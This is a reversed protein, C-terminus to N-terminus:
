VTLLVEGNDGATDTLNIALATQSPGTGTFTNNVQLSSDNDGTVVVDGAGAPALTINGSNPSVTFVDVGANQVAFRGNTSCTTVCQLNFLLNADTATDAANVVLDHTDTTTLTNVLNNYLRSCLPM